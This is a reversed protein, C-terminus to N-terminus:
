RRLISRARHRRLSRARVSEQRDGIAIPGGELNVKAPVRGALAVPRQGAANIDGLVQGPNTAVIGALPSSEGAAALKMSVPVGADAAVIDGATIGPNSVPFM